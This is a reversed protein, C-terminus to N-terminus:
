KREKTQAPSISAQKDCKCQLGAANNLDVSCSYKKIAFKKRIINIRITIGLWVSSEKEAM